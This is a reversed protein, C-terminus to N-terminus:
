NLRFRFLILFCRSIDDRSYLLLSVQSIESVIRQKMGSYSSNTKGTTKPAKTSELKQNVRNYGLCVCVCVICRVLCM